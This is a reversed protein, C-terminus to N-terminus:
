EEQRPLEVGYSRLEKVVADRREIIRQLELMTDGIKARLSNLKSEKGWTFVSAAELKIIAQNYEHVQARRTAIERSLFEHQKQYGFVEMDWGAAYDAKSGEMFSELPPNSHAVFHHQALEVDYNELIDRLSEKSSQLQKRYAHLRQLASPLNTIMYQAALDAERSSLHSKGDNIRLFGAVVDKVDVIMVGLKRIVKELSEKRDAIRQKFIEQIPKDGFKQILDDRFKGGPVSLQRADEISLGDPIDNEAKESKPRNEEPAGETM